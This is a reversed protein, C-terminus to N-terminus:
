KKTNLIDSAFDGFTEVWNLFEYRGSSHGERYAISFVKQAIEESFRYDNMIANTVDSDFEENLRDTEEKYEKKKNKIEDNHKEVMEKNAKVSLNEDFVYTDKLLGSSSPYPLKNEYDKNSLKKRVDEINIQENRIM